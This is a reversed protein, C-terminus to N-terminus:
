QHEREWLAVCAMLADSPYIAANDQLQFPEYNFNNPHISVWVKDGHKSALIKFPQQLGELHRWRTEDPMAAYKSRTWRDWFADEMTPTTRAGPPEYYIPDAQPMIPLLSIHVGAKALREIDSVTMATYSIAPEAYDPPMGM